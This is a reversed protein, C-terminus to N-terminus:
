LRRVALTGNKQRYDSLLDLMGFDKLAAYMGGGTDRRRMSYSYAGIAESQITASMTPTALESIIASCLLGEIDAPVEQYGHTFTTLFTHSFWAVSYWTYPLNIIGSYRPEPITVTDVGDFVFWTVPINPIWAVGSQAVVSDVSYIPKGPLIFKGDDASIKITDGAIYTFTNRAYRRIIASGDRLM